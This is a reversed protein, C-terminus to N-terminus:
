FGVQINRWTNPQRIFYSRLRISAKAMSTRERLAWESEKVEALTHIVADMAVNYRHALSEPTAKRAGWRNLWYSLPDGLAKPFNFM